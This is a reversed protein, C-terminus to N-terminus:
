MSFILAAVSLNSEVFFIPSPPNPNTYLTDKVIKTEAHNTNRNYEDRNNNLNTKWSITCM